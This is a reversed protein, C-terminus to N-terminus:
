QMLSPDIWWQDIYTFFEFPHIDVGRVYDRFVANKNLTWLFTYPQEENLLQHLKWKVMKRGESTTSAQLDRLLTDVGDNQFATYNLTIERSDFITAIEAFSNYEKEGLIMDFDGSRAVEVWKKKTLNEVIIEIGIRKMDSRFQETFDNTEQSEAIVKIVFSLKDTGNNRVGDGDINTFGQEELLHVATVEDYPLPQVNPNYGPDSPVYPGSLIQGQSLYIMDLMRKRNTGLTIAKRIEKNQLLKNRFNHGIYQFSLSNYPVLYFQTATEFITLYQPPLEIAFHLSGAMLSQAINLYMPQISVKISDIYAPDSYFQANRSLNIPGSFMASRFKYKGSGGGLPSVSYSSNKQIGNGGMKSSMHEPLIPFGLAFAPNDLPHNLKVIAIKDNTVVVDDIININKKIFSNVNSAPNKILDVTFKVDHATIPQGDHWLANKRMEITISMGDDSISYDELLMPVPENNKGVSILPDYMLTVLRMAVGSESTVPDYSEPMRLESYLLEGFVAPEQSLAVPMTIHLVFCVLISAYVTRYASIDYVHAKIAM